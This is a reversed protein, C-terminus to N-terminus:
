CYIVYSNSKDPFITKQFTLTSFWSVLSHIGIQFENVDVNRFHHDVKLKQIKKTLISVIQIKSETWTQTKRINPNKTM